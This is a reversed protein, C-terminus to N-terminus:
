LGSVKTFFEIESLAVLRDGKTAPDIATIHVELESVDDRDPLTIQQPSPSDKITLDVGDQGTLVLRLREPRGYARFDATDGNWIVLHDLSVPEDFRVTLVPERVSAHFAWFTNSFGDVAHVGEHGKVASSAVAEAPVAPRFEPRIVLGIRDRIARVERDVAQRMPPHLAYLSTATIAAVGVAMRLFGLVSPTGGGSTGNGSGQHGPRQGAKLRRDRTRLLLRRWWPQRRRVERTTELKEGCHRCFTRELPNGSTCAPCRLNGDRSRRQVQQPAKVATDERPRQPM